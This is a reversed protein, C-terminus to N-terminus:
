CSTTFIDAYQAENLDSPTTGTKVWIYIKNDEDPIYELQLYLDQKPTSLNFLAHSFLEDNKYMGPVRIEEVDILDFEPAGEINLAIVAPWDYGLKEWPWPDLELVPVISDDCGWQFLMARQVHMRTQLLRPLPRDCIGTDGCYSGWQGFNDIYILSYEQPIEGFLTELQTVELAKWPQGYSDTFADRAAGSNWLERLAKVRHEADNGLGAAIYIKGDVVTAQRSVEGSTSREQAISTNSLLLALVAAILKPLFRLTM